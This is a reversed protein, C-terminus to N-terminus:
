EVFAYYCGQCDSCTKRLKPKRPVTPLIQEEEYENYKKELWQEFNEYIPKIFDENINKDDNFFTWLNNVSNDENKVIFENKELHKLFFQLGGIIINVFPYLKNFKDIINSTFLDLFKINIKLIDPVIDTSYDKLIITATELEKLNNMLERTNKSINLTETQTYVNRITSTFRVAFEEDTLKLPEKAPLPKEEVPSVDYFISNSTKMANEELDCPDLIYAKNIKVIDDSSIFYREGTRNLTRNINALGSFFNDPDNMGQIGSIVERYNCQAIDTNKAELLAKKYIKRFYFM